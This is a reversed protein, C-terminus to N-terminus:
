FAWFVCESDDFCVLGIRKAIFNAIEESRKLIESDEDSDPIDENDKQHEDEERM